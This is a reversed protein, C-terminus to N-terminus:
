IFGYWQSFLLLIEREYRIFSSKHTNYVTKFYKALSYTSAM